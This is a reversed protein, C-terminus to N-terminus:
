LGDRARIESTLVIRFWPHLRVRANHLGAEGAMHLLEKPRFGRLISIPGDHRTLRSRSLLRTGIWTLLRASRSRTVDNVILGHRAVRAMERLLDIGEAETLHHFLLSCLIYDFSKDPYPLPPVDVQRLQIEPFSASWETAAALVQHSRDVAEVAVTLGRHRAWRCIARPIDAAGTAVDLIMPRTQRREAIMGRLHLLVTRTGGLYRNLRELDRLNERVEEDSNDPLDLLEIV